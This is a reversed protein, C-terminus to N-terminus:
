LRVMLPAISRRHRRRLEKQSLGAHKGEKTTTVDEESGFHGRGIPPRLPMLKMASQADTATRRGAREFRLPEVGAEAVADGMHRIKGSTLVGELEVVGNEWLQLEANQALLREAVARVGGAVLLVDDEVLFGADKAIVIVSGALVVGVDQGDEVIHRAEAM